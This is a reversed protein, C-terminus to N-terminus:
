SRYYVDSLNEKIVGPIYMSGTETTDKNALAFAFPRFLFFNQFKKSPNLLSIQFRDYNEYKYSALSNDRNENKHKLVQYFVYNAATDVVRKHKKGAKVTIEVLKLEDSGMEINLAQSAGRKIHITRTRYGIYSFSISDVRETTRISYEGRPDTLTAKLIGLRVNVYSLPEKTSADVVKGYVETVMQATSIQSFFLLLLLASYRYIRM